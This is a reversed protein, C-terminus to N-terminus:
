DGYPTEGRHSRGEIELWKFLSERIRDMMRPGIKAVFLSRDVNSTLATPLQEDHRHDLISHLATQDDAGSDSTGLDDLVLFKARRCEEVPDPADKQRYTLRIREILRSHKMFLGCNRERMIAVALHSKGTGVTGTFIIFGAKRRSFKQAAELARRDSENRPQFNKFSAHCLTKPVGRGHMWGSEQMVREERVCAPCAEYVLRFEQERWSEVRSLTWDIRSEDGHRPCKRTKPQDKAWERLKADRDATERQMRELRGLIESTIGDVAEMTTGTTM